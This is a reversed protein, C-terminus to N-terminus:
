YCQQGWISVQYCNSTGAVRRTGLGGVTSCAVLSLAAVALVLIKM